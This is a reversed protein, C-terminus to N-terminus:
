VPHLHLDAPLLVAFLRSLEEPHDRGASLRLLRRSLLGGASAALSVRRPASRFAEVVRRDASCAASSPFTGCGGVGYARRVSGISIGLGSGGARLGAP